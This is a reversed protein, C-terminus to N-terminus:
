AYTESGAHTPIVGTSGRDAIVLAVLLVLAQTIPQSLCLMHCLVHMAPSGSVLLALSSTCVLGDCSGFNDGRVTLQTYNKGSLRDLTIASVIAAARDIVEGPFPTGDHMVRCPTSLLDDRVVQEVVISHIEPALYSFRRPHSTQAYEGSGVQM